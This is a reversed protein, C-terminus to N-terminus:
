DCCLANEHRTRIKRLGNYYYNKKKNKRDRPHNIEFKEGGGESVLIM